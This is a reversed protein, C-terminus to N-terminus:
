LCLCLQKKLRRIGPPYLYTKCVSKSIEQSYPGRVDKAKRIISAWEERDVTKQGKRNVKMERLYGKVDEVWRMRPKGM